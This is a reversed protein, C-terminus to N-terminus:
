FSDYSAEFKIPSYRVNMRRKKLIMKREITKYYAGKSRGSGETSQVEASADDLVLLFENNIDQEVKSTEYDRVFHFQTSLVDPDTGGTGSVKARAAKFAASAFDDATLFYALFHDGDKEMPRFIATDLRSDDQDVPREGPRESFKFLDYKNSWIDADPLFEFSDVAVLDSKTPHRINSLDFTEEANVM